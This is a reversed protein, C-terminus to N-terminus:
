AGSTGSLLSKPVPRDSGLDNFLESAKAHDSLLVSQGDATTTGGATPVTTTQPGRLAFAVRILQYLHTGQDVTLANTANTATPIAAFPNLFVAPSTAKSLLAKLFARQDQVRQLDSSGFSHRDRVYGLAQGGSLTQCGAQLNLGSATDHLAHKVCIKVGGVSDVVHVLGGFGIEMYHDVRLGTYNQVTKALLKPGGFAFAANLKNQGYGPIVVLLDRPLSVLTPPGGSGPIHMLMITDSRQGTVDHGTALQDEQQRTLGQRSDSGTILWNQGASEAPRGSYDALVAVRNLKSDLYFYMGITAVLLVAVAGVIIKLIRRGRRGGGGGTRRVTHSGPGHTSPQEPWESDGAARGPWAGASPPAAAARYGQDGYPVQVTPDGARGREDPGREARGPGAQGSRPRGPAPDGARSSGRGGDNRFWEDPYGDM